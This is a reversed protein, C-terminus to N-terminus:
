EEDCDIVDDIFDSEVDGDSTNEILVEEANLHKLEDVVQVALNRVDIPDHFHLSGFWLKLFILKELLNSSLRNRLSNQILGASSFVRESPASSAPISLLMKVGPFLM